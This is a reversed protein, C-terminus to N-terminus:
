KEPKNIHIDWNRYRDDIASTNGDTGLEAPNIHTDDLWGGKPFHIVIVKCNEVEVKLDYTATHYTKPNYYKVTADYEGDEFGCDYHKTFSLQILILTILILKSIKM